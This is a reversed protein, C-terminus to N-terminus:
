PGEGCIMQVSVQNSGASEGSSNNASVYYYAEICSQGITDNFSTIDADTRGAEEFSGTIRRYIVFGAENESNDQWQLSVSYAGTALGNLQTPPEPINESTPRSKSCGIILAMLASLFVSYKLIRTRM